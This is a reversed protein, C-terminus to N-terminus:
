ESRTMYVADGPEHTRLGCVRYFEIAAPNDALLWADEIGQARMYANMTEVLARGVGRRRHTKRTGVESIYMEFSLSSARQRMVVCHLHGVIAGAEEAIWHLIMPDALYARAAEAALPENADDRDDLDFAGAERALVALMGEDGPGLRRISAVVVRSSRAGNGM